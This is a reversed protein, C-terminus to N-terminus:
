PCSVWGGCSSPVWCMETISAWPRATASVVVILVLKPDPTMVEAPKGRLLSISSKAEAGPTGLAKPSTPLSCFATAGPFRGSEEMVGVTTVSLSPLTTIVTPPDPPGNMMLPVKCAMM